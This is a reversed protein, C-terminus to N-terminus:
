ARSRRRGGLFAVLELGADLALVEQDRGVAAGDGVRGVLLGLGAVVLLRQHAAVVHDGLDAVGHDREAPLGVLVVVLVGVALELHVPVVVVRQAGGVPVGEELEHDLRDGLLVAQARGEHRLREGVQGAAAAM